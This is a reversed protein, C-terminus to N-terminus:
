RREEAYCQPLVQRLRSDSGWFAMPEYDPYPYYGLELAIDLGREALWTEVLSRVSVPRGSCVNVAGSDHGDIALAVIFRAVQGVPLFDRLQEGQSMRFSQDGRQGAAVLQSFLSGSPQGEGYMYFLRAWTLQFPATVKLFELQRHLADKAFGYPNRPNTMMGEHLEGARMGYEFCTGTCTLSRLGARVLASLFRYQAALHTEFHSLARYDPLGSWALHIVIDPSGLLEFAEVAPAEAIDFRLNRAGQPLQSVNIPRRSVAITEIERHRALERLVHRGIFGGAGTVAVKM